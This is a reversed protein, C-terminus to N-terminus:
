RHGYERRIIQDIESKLYIVNGHNSIETLELHKKKIKNFDTKGLGYVAELYKIIGTKKIYVPNDHHLISTVDMDRILRIRVNVAEAINEPISCISIEVNQKPNSFQEFRTGVFTFPNAAIGTDVLKGGDYLYVLCKEDEAHYFDISMNPAYKQKNIWMEDDIADCYEYFEDVSIQSALQHSQVLKKYRRETETRKQYWQEIRIEDMKCYCKHGHLMYYKDNSCSTCDFDLCKIEDPIIEHGDLPCHKKRDFAYDEM